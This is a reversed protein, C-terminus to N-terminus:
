ESDRILRAAETRNSVGLAKYAGRLHQKVTSETLFLRKAIEGNTLGEGVLDLIERQRNSLIDLGAIDDNSILYELLERPAVIQGERAVKVARIMQRPQMGSHIYGRAGSRLATRAVPLDLYFGFVLVVADPSQKRLRKVGELLGEAGGTGFIVVSPQEGKPPEHGVHVRAEAELIRALGIGALPYPSDIWILGLPERDDGPVRRETRHAM